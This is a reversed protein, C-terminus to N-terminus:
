KNNCKKSAWLSEILRHDIYKKKMLSVAAAPHGMLNRATEVGPFNRGAITKIRGCNVDDFFNTLDKGLVDYSQLHAHGKLGAIDMLIKGNTANEPYLLFNQRVCNLVLSFKLVYYGPHGKKM